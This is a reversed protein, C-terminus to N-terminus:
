SAPSTSAGSLYAADDHSILRVAVGGVRLDVDPLHKVEDALAAVAALAAGRSFSSTPFWARAGDGVDRWDKTDMLGSTSKL